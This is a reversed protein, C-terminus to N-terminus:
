MAITISAWRLISPRAAKPADREFAMNPTISHAGKVHCVVFFGIGSVTNANILENLTTFTKPALIEDRVRGPRATDGHDLLWNDLHDIPTELTSLTKLMEASDFFARAAAVAEERTPVASPQKVHTRTGIDDTTDECLIIRGKLSESSARQIGRVTAFRFVENPISM